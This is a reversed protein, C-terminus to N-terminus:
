PCKFSPQPSAPHGHAVWQGNACIWTDEGTIGRVFLLFLAAVILVVYTYKMKNEQNKFVLFSYVLPLIAAMIISGLTFAPGVWPLIGGLITFVGAIMFARSGYSHTKEWNETSSLTWPTRIGIFYNQKIKRLQSGIIVFLAGVGVIVFSRVDVVYGLSAILILIQLLFFLFLIGVQMIGWENKFKRYNEKKPDLLPIVLFFVFMLLMLAPMIWVAPYKNMYNDIQGQWNWHMPIKAPLQQFLFATVVFSLGIVGLQIKKM